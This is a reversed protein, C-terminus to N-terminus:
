RTISRVGGIGWWAPLLARVRAEDFRDDILVVSGRDTMTRIVRGAAQVVKQLGPYLYTYDYGAGFMQQMRERMQENFRNVQPLGLTAIFAGILRDGPLDIGEGFAGGLVAFGVGQGGPEFRALFAQRAAEDMDRAQLWCPVDPHQATFAAAVQELYDFSSFFALYNGPRERTHTGLLRAIPEISAAREKWRTSIDAAVHVQLQEARFPSPVDVWPTDAPLGLMDTYFQWPSLTASFLVSAHADAFRSKLFPGPVLNRIHLSSLRAGHLEVDFLSHTDFSDALRAFVIMAFYFHQLDTNPEAPHQALHDGIAAVARQLAELFSVPIEAHSQCPDTQERTLANWQRHLRDLATKLEGSVGARVAKLDAQWLEGSYMKRARDVLNHAEDVLTVARWQQESAMSHLMGGHDFYYNYDGVCVDSWRAMEQGLYYPCIDHALAVRRLAAKDFQAEALMAHRASPLRDYFGRALPCSEGHCAADPHECAKDRAVLEVVRLPLKGETAIVGLADLALQRGSTKAALYFIRDIQHLPRAKLVPFLTGVTKGIGTPAQMLVACGARVSRFAAEALERQGARFAPYPFALRALAANLGVSHALERDAWSVFRECCADFYAKLSASDRTETLVTETQDGINFYVLAVDITALGLQQCLLWGYVRAQAWHLTRHNDPMRALDGRYTKIEEVRNRQADYGDARGRVRLSGYEGEVSVESRYGTGRRARLTAHGAIGELATPAPTFRTDLDGTKASFECLSRVAITYQM